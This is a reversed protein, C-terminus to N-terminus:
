IILWLRKRHTNKWLNFCIEWDIYNFPVGEKSQKIQSYILRQPHTWNKKKNSEIRVGTFRIVDYGLETKFQENEKQNM